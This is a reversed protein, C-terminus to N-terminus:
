HQWGARGLGPMAQPSAGCPRLCAGAQADGLACTLRQSSIARLSRKKVSWTVLASIGVPERKPPSRSRSRSSSSTRGGQGPSPM